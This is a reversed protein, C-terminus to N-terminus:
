TLIVIDIKLKNINFTSSSRQPLSATMWLPFTREESRYYFGLQRLKDVYAESHVSAAFHFSGSTSCEGTTCFIFLYISVDPPHLTKDLPNSPSQFFRPLEISSYCFFFWCDNHFSKCFVIIQRQGVNTNHYTVSFCCM